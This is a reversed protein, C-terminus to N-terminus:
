GGALKVRLGMGRIEEVLRERHDGQILLTRGDRSGGTGLTSKFRKLAKELDAESGPMGSVATMM